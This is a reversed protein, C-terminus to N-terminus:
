NDAANRTECILQQGAAIQASTFIIIHDRNFNLRWRCNPIPDNRSSTMLAQIHHWGYEETSFFVNSRGSRGLLMTTDHPTGAFFCM